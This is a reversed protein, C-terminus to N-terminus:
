EREIEAERMRLGGRDRVEYNRNWGELGLLNGGRGESDFILILVASLAINVVISNASSPKHARLGDTLIRMAEFSVLLCVTFCICLRHCFFPCNPMLVTVQGRWAM